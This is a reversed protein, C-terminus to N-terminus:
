EGGESKAKDILFNDVSTEYDYQSIDNDEDDYDEDWSCIDMGSFVALKEQMELARIAVDYASLLDKTKRLLECKACNRNHADAKLICAKENKMLEAKENKMLEIAEYIKM